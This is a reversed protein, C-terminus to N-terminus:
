QAGKGAPELQNTSEVSAERKIEEPVYHYMFFLAVTTFSVIMIITKFKENKEFSESMAQDYIRQGEELGHLEVYNELLPDMERVTVIVDYIDKEDKM